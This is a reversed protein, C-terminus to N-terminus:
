RWPTFRIEFGSFEGSAKDEEVERSRIYPRMEEEIASLFGRVQEAAGECVLEVRRDALNRVFGAVEFRKALWRATFRFGVGQVNGSYFIRARLGEGM